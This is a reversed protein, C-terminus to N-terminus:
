SKRVAAPFRWRAPPAQLPPRPSKLMPGTQLRWFPRPFIMHHVILLLTGFHNVSGSRCSHNKISPSHRYVVLLCTACAIFSFYRMSSEAARSHIRFPACSIIWRGPSSASCRKESSRAANRWSVSRLFSLFGGSAFYHGEPPKEDNAFPILRPLNRVASLVAKFLSSIKCTPAATRRAEQKRRAPRRKTLRPGGSTPRSNGRLKDSKRRV